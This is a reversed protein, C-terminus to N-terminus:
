EPREKIVRDFDETTPSPSSLPCSRSALAVFLSLADSSPSDTDSPVLLSVSAGSASGAAGVVDPLAGVGLALPLWHPTEMSGSPMVGPSLRASAEAAALVECPASLLYVARPAPSAFGSASYM